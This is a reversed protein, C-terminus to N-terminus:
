SDTTLCRCVPALTATSPSTFADGAFPWAVSTCAVVTMDAISDEIAKACTSGRGAEKGKAAVQEKLAPTLYTDCIKSEDRKAVADRFDYVAQAVDKETGKFDGTDASQGRGCPGAGIAALALFAPILAARRIRM